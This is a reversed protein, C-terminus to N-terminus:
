CRLSINGLGCKPVFVLFLTQSQLKDCFDLRCKSCQLLIRLSKANIIGGPLDTPNQGVTKWTMNVIMKFAPDDTNKGNHM